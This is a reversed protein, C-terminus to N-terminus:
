WRRGRRAARQGGPEVIRARAKGDTLYRAAAWAAGPTDALGARASLGLRELRALLDDLLAQEGGFLHACGSIDLWLGAAGGDCLDPTSPAAEMAAWPSYRQAWDCLRELALTEAAIDRERSRLDPVLARAEALPLGPTLGAKEAAADLAALRLQQGDRATLVLPPAASATTQDPRARRWSGPRLLAPSETAFRSLWLSVVRRM